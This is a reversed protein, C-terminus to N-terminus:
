SGIECQVELVTPCIQRQMEPPGLDIIEELMERAHALADGVESKGHRMRAYEDKINGKITLRARELEQLVEQSRREIYPLHQDVQSQTMGDGVLAKFSPIIDASFEYAIIKLIQRLWVHKDEYTCHILDYRSSPHQVANGIRCVERECEELQWLRETLKYAGQNRPYDQSFAHGAAFAEHCTEYKM